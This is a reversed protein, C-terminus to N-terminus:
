PNLTGAERKPNLTPPKTKLNRTDWNLGLVRLMFGLARGKVRSVRLLGM